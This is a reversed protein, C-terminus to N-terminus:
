LLPPPHLVQDIMQYAYLRQSWGREVEGMRHENAYPINIKSSLRTIMFIRTNSFFSSASDFLHAIVGVYIGWVSGM